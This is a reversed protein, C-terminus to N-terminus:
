ETIIDSRGDLLETRAGELAGSLMGVLLGSGRVDTKGLEEVVELMRLEDDELEFVVRTAGVALGEDFPVVRKLPVIGEFPVVMRLPGSGDAFRPRSDPVTAPM